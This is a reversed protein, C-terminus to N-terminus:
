FQILHPTPILLARSLRERSGRDGAESMWHTGKEYQNQQEAHHVRDHDPRLLLAGAIVLRQHGGHLDAVLHHGRGPDEPHDGGNITIHDADLDTRPDDHPHRTGGDAAPDARLELVVLRALREVVDVVLQTGAHGVLRRGGVTRARGTVGRGRRSRRGLRRRNLSRRWRCRGRRFGRRRRGAPRDFLASTTRRPRQTESMPMMTRAKPISAAVITEPFVGWRPRSRWPPADTTSEGLVLALLLSRFVAISIMRLRTSARPTASGSIVWCPLLMTMWSGPTFFWSCARWSTPRVAWSSNRGTSFWTGYLAFGAGSWGRAVGGSCSSGAAVTARGSLSLRTRYWSPGACSVPFASADASAVM